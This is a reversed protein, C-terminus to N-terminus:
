RDVEVCEARILLEVPGVFLSSPAGSMRLRTGTVLGWCGPGALPQPSVASVRVKFPRAWGPRRVILVSGRRVVSWSRM